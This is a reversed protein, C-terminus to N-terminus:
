SVAAPYRMENFGCGSQGPNQPWVDPTTLPCPLSGLRLAAFAPTPPSVPRGKPSARHPLPFQAFEYLRSGSRWLPNVNGLTVFSLPDFGPGTYASSSPADLASQSLRLGLLGVLTSRAHLLALVRLLRASRSPILDSPKM